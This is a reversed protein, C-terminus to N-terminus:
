MGGNKLCPLILQQNELWVGNFPNIKYRTVTSFCVKVLLTLRYYVFDYIKRWTKNTYSMIGPFAQLYHYAFRKLSYLFCMTLLLIQNMNQLRTYSTLQIKEWNYSQKLHRHVEEIKWRMRYMWLAKAMIQELTLEPEGPFDCFFYFLGNGGLKGSHYRAVVLWTELTEPSKVPHPDLRIEVRKVGCKFMKNSTKDQINFDLKVSKAVELFSRECGGTILSRDGTSRVIYNMGTTQLFRFLHRSDFGRDFVYVGKNGSALNIEVLRDQTIQNLSDQELDRSILDSSLPKIEYGESSDQFAIINMLDYGLQDHRGTGGDRVYKLGEMCTAKTKVIDSDDVIIVTESNFNRSQLAIIRSRLAAALKEKNLHRTFRECVKKPTVKENLSSAMKLCIPSQSKLIGLCADQLFHYEPLTLEDRFKDLHQAFKVQMNQRTQKQQEDFM